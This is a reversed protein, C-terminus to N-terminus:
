FNIVKVYLEGYAYSLGVEDIQKAKGYEALIEREGYKFLAGEPRLEIFTLKGFKPGIESRWWPNTIVREIDMDPTVDKVDIQGEYTTFNRIGPDSSVENGYVKIIAMNINHKPSSIKESVASPVFGILQSNMLRKEQKAPTMNTGASM